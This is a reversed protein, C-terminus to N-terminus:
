LQTVIGVVHDKKIKKLDDPTKPAKQNTPSNLCTSSKNLVKGPSSRNLMRNKKYIDSTIRRKKKQKLLKLDQKEKELTFKPNELAEEKSVFSGSYFLQVPADIYSIDKERSNFATSTCTQNTVSSSQKLKVDSTIESDCKHKIDDGSKSLSQSEDSSSSVIENLTGELTDMSVSSVLNIKKLSKSLENVQEAEKSTVECAINCQKSDEDSFLYSKETCKRFSNDDNLSSAIKKDILFKEFFTKDDDRIFSSMGLLLKKNKNITFIFLFEQLAKEINIIKNRYKNLCNAFKKLDNEDLCEPLMTHFQNVSMNRLSNTNLNKNTEDDSITQPSSLITSIDSESKLNSLRIQKKTSSSNVQTSDILNSFNYTKEHAPTTPTSFSAYSSKSFSNRIGTSRESSSRVFDPLLRQANFQFRKTFSISENTSMKRADLSDDTSISHNNPTDAGDQISKDLFDMTTKTYVLEFMQNTLSCSIEAEIQSETCFVALCSADENLDSAFQVFVYFISDDQVFGFSSIKHTPIRHIVHEGNDRWCIKLNHISFACLVDNRYDLKSPFQSLRKKEDILSLLLHRNNPDFEASIDCVTGLYKLEKEVYSKTLVEPNVKQSPSLTPVSRLPRRENPPTNISQSYASNNESSSWSGGNFFRRFFGVQRKRKADEDMNNLQLM